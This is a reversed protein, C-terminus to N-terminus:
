LDPLNPMQPHVSDDKTLPIGISLYAKRPGSVCVCVRALDALSLLLAHAPDHDVTRRYADIGPVGTVSGVAPSLANEADGDAQVGFSLRLASFNRVYADCRLRIHRVGAADVHNHAILRLPLDDEDALDVRRQDQVFGGQVHVPRSWSFGGALGVKISLMLSDSADAAHVSACGKSAVSDSAIPSTREDTLRFHLLCPLDNHVM